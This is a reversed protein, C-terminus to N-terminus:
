VAGILPTEQYYNFWYSQWDNNVRLIRLALMDDAKEVTWWSGTLKLRNQIVYRHASEIKGSGIPLDADIASKYDLYELRNKIYRTGVRVPAFKDALHEPEMRTSLNKLVKLLQNKKLDQKQQKLWKKQQQENGPAAAALYECLHYFDILYSAREGFLRRVQNVIWSAGDGIAHVKTNSGIGARIASHLLQNGADNVTGVTGGILSQKQGPIEVLSLRAEKWSLKRNKRRDVIQVDDTAPTTNVIPIMTGDMETIIQDVGDRDPIESALIQSTKVAHAHKQTIAQASSIPVTIGYHEKLKEPIKGFSVDAGLDTIARQLPLSYGRCHIQASSSFPRFVKETKVCIFIQEIVQITGFLSYWYLQKKRQRRMLPSKECALAKKKEQSNAWDQLADNGLKQLESVVELEAGSATECNDDPNEVLALISLVRASINPHAQLRLALEYASSTLEVTQNHNMFESM